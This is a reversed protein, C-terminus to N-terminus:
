RHRYNEALMHLATNGHCDVDNPNAGVKLLIRTVDRNPILPPKLTKYAVNHPTLPSTYLSHCSYHLISKSDRGRLNIKVFEFLTRYVRHQESSSLEIREDEEQVPSACNESWHNPCHERAADKWHTLLLSAINLTLTILRQLLAEDTINYKLSSKAEHLCKELITILEDATIPTVRRLSASATTRDSLMYEFLESFSYFTSLTM